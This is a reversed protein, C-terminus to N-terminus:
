DDYRAEMQRYEKELIDVEERVNDLAGAVADNMGEVLHLSEVKDELNQLGLLVLKIQAETKEQLTQLHHLNDKRELALKLNKELVAKLEDDDCSSLRKQIKKPENDITQMDLRSVYSELRERNKLIRPLRKELIATVESEFDAALEGGEDRERKISARIRDAIMQAREMPPTEELAKPVKGEIAPFRKQLEQLGRYVGYVFGGSFLLVFGFGFFIRLLLAM